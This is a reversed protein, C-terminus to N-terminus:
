FVPRRRRLGATPELRIRPCYISNANVGVADAMARVAGEDAVDARVLLTKAGAREAEEAVARAASESRSFNVAVDFGARAFALASSRGIGRGAGTVLVTRRAAAEAM